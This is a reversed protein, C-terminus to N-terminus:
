NIKYTIRVEKQVDFGADKLVEFLAKQYVKEQLM